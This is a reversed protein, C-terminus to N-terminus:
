SERRKQIENSGLQELKAEVLKAVLAPPLPKEPSFHVTSGKVEFAELEKAYRGLVTRNVYFSLHKDHVAYGVLQGRCKYFPIGYSILEEAM